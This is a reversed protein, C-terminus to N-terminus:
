ADNWITDDVPNDWFQFSSEAAHIMEISEDEPLIIVEVKAGNPFPLKPLKITGDENVVSHYKYANM